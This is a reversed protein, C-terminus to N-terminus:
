QKWRLCRIKKTARNSKVCVCIKIWTETPRNWTSSVLYAKSYRRHGHLKCYEILNRQCDQLHGHDTGFNNPERALDQHLSGVVIASNSLFHSAWCYRKINKTLSASGMYVLTNETCMFEVFKSPPPCKWLAHMCLEFFMCSLNMSRVHSMWQMCM